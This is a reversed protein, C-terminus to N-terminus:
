NKLIKKRDLSVGGFERGGFKMVVNQLYHKDFKM